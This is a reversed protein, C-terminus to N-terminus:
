ENEHGGEFIISVGEIEGQIQDAEKLLGHAIDREFAVVNHSFRNVSFLFTESPSLQIDRPHRGGSDIRQIVQWLSIEIVCIIDCGRISVYLYRQDSSLRIAAAEGQEQEDLLALKKMIAYGNKLDIAYIECSKECIVYLIEHEQDYVGHRPGSLKPFPIEGIHHLTERDYVQICDMLCCPVLVTNNLLIVQHAGAKDQIQIIRDMEIDNHDKKYRIVSGDHYNATYIYKADQVVYCAVHSENGTVFYKKNRMVQMGNGDIKCPFAMTGQYLSIYKADDVEEYLTYKMFKHTIMDFQIQYIGKGIDSTYSGVYGKLIFM